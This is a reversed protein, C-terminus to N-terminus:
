RPWLASNAELLLLCLSLSPVDYVQLREIELDKRKLERQTQTQKGRLDANIKSLDGAEAQM